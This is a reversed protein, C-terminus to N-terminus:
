DGIIHYLAMRVINSTMICFVWLITCVMLLFNLQVTPNTAGDDDDDDDSSSIIQENSQFLSLTGANTTTTTTRTATTVMTMTNMTLANYGLVFFSLVILSELCFLVLLMCMLVETSFTHRSLIRNYLPAMITAFYCTNATCSVVMAIIILRGVITNSNRNSPSGSDDGPVGSLKMLMTMWPNMSKNNNDDESSMVIEQTYIDNNTFDLGTTRSFYRIVMDIFKKSHHNNHGGVKSITMATHQQIQQSEMIVTNAVTSLTSILRDILLLTISLELLSQTELFPQQIGEVIDMCLEKFETVISTWQEMFWWSWQSSEGANIVIQITNSNENDRNDHDNDDSTNSPLSYSLSSGSMLLSSAQQSNADVPHGQFRTEQQEENTTSAVFGTTM